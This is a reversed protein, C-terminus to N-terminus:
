PGVQHGDLGGDADPVPVDNGDLFELRANHDNAPTVTVPSSGAEATYDTHSPEFQPTLMGRSVTLDSLLVDCFPLDLDRFDNDAVSRLGEPICGTFENGALRLFRLQALETLQGPIRMSLENDSLDLTQQNALRSLRSPIGGTLQNGHLDLTHLNTLGEHETPIKGMLRNGSLNLIQLNSLNGLEASLYGRM